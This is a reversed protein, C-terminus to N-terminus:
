WAVTSAVKMAALHDVSHGVWNEVSNVAKRVALQVGWRGVKRVVTLNGSMEVLNVVLSAVMTEVMTEVMKGVLPVATSVAWWDVMSVVSTLARPVALTGDWSSYVM